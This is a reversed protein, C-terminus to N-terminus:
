IPEQPHHVPGPLCQPCFPLGIACMKHLTFAQKRGHIAARDIGYSAATPQVVVKSMGQDEVPGSIQSCAHKSVMHVSVARCGTQTKAETGVVVLDDLSYM